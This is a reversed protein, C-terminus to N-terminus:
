CEFPANDMGKGTLIEAVVADLERAQGRAKAEAVVKPVLGVGLESFLVAAKEKVAQLITPQHMAFALLELSQITKGEQGLLPALGVLTDLVIPIAGIEQAIQLAEYLHERAETFEGLSHCVEGLNGLTNALGSKIGIQRYTAIGEQFLRKAKAYDGSEMAMHGLNNYAIAVGWRDGIDQYLALCEQGFQEAAEIKELRFAAQCLGALANAIGIRYDFQRCIQLAEQLIEKAEIYEGLACHVLGLNSLSSAIGKQDGSGRRISLSEQCHEKARSFAGQRRAVLCLNNFANAVGWRNGTRQYVDLSKELYQEAQEYEGKIHAMYGLGHLPLATERWAGLRDFIALSREFLQRAKDSHETFECCKGQRALLKGLLLGKEGVPMDTDLAAVAQSFIKVGEQYRDRLAYFLYLSELSQQIVAMALTENQESSLQTSAWRWASRVNDIEANIIELAERQNKGKLAGEQGELLAAYYGSHLAELETRRRVRESAYQRLLQHVHYRGSFSRRLLSKDVLASLVLSSAGAVQEAAERRFGGRFVSLKTFVAREEPSLLGWSHEFTARISQHREPVNRLRTTLIDFNHEIEQAIERCSRVPVWATALEIGLPMGEVLQCIRVMSSTEAEDLSFRRAARRVCQQFLAIASYAELNPALHDQPYTLGEVLYVREEPLNMRERSTILLVVGPARRVMEVLLGAGGGNGGRASPASPFLLHEINDLVLLVEKERLYNLLQEKPDQRDYFPLDFIDAMTSVLLDASNVSALPIFYVGHAFAGIHDAAAQLALRTKGIGGPGILTVLRCDPNALIDALETLEEERGVFPFSSPSLNHPLVSPHLNEEVQIREYLAVTEDAPEVGLEEALARRCAKYQALAASRQGDLALLQMLQRHAEERWPELAVQRWAFHRAREYDGRREYYSALHSLAEVTQRRLWERRLLAWEEFVSSDSLFFQELFDGRYLEVMQELRRMCPLCNELRRHRHEKCTEALTIFATVDLWHDSDLNFQITQRSVWLFPAIEDQDSLAQRLHSLAQRLNQRAKHESEDPWLLRALVERRHPHEAEVALYALLARAKDTAFDTVPEGGLTVQLPGLLVITLKAMTLSRCGAFLSRFAQEQETLRRRNLNYCWQVNHAFSANGRQRKKSPLTSSDLLDDKRRKPGVATCSL